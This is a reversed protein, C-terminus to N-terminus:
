AQEPLVRFITRKLILDLLFLLLAALAFPQFHETWLVQDKTEVKTKELKDIEAFVRVLAGDDSARFFKGGTAETIKMLLAPNISSNTQRYVRAGTLPDVDPYNVVGDKGLAIAYIKIGYGAAIDGATLPAIAGM